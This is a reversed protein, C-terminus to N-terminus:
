RYVRGTKRDRLVVREVIDFGALDCVNKIVKVLINNRTDTEDRANAIAFAATKDEYGSGNRMNMGM